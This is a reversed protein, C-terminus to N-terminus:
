GMMTYKNLRLGTDLVTLSGPSLLLSHTGTTYRHAGARAGQLYYLLLLDAALDTDTTMEEGVYGPQWCGWRRGYGTVDANRDFCRGM